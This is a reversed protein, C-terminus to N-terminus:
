ESIKTSKSFYPNRTQNPLGLVGEVAACLHVP